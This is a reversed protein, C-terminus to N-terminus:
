IRVVQCRLVRMAIRMVVSTSAFQGDASLKSRSLALSLTECDMLRHPLVFQGKRIGIYYNLAYQGQKAEFIVFCGPAHAYLTYVQVLRRKTLSVDYACSM